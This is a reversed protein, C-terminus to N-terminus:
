GLNGVQLERVLLKVRMAVATWRTGQADVVKAKVVLLGHVRAVAWDEKAVVFLKVVGVKNSVVPLHHRTFCGQSITLQV